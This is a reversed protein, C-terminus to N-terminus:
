KVAQAKNLNWYGLVHFKEPDSDQRLRIGLCKGQDNALLLRSSASGDGIPSPEDGILVDAVRTSSGLLQALEGNLGAGISVPKPSNTREILDTGIQMAQATIFHQHHKRGSHLVFVGGVIILAVLPAIIQTKNLQEFRWRSLCSM